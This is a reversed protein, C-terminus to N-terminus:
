GGDLMRLGVFHYRFTVRDFISLTRDMPLSAPGRKQNAFIVRALGIQSPDIAGNPGGKKNGNMQGLINAITALNQDNPAGGNPDGAAAAAYTNADGLNDADNPLSPPNDDMQQLVAGLEAQQDPDLSPDMAAALAQGPSSANGLFSNLPMQTAQQFGGGFQPSTVTSPMNSGATAACSTIMSSDSQAQSCTDGSGGSTDQTAAAGIPNGGSIVNQSGDSGTGGGGVATAAAVPTAGSNYSEATALDSTLSALATKMSNNDSYAQMAAMATTVCSATDRNNAMKQRISKAENKEVAAAQKAEAEQAAQAQEQRTKGTLLSAGHTIAESGGSFLINTLANQLDNNMIGDAASTALNFTQCVAGLYPLLGVCASACVGAVAVWVKWLASDANYTKLDSAAAQCSSYKQYATSNQNAPAPQSLSCGCINNMDGPGPSPVPSPTGTPCSYAHASSATLALVLQGLFLVYATNKLLRAFFNIKVSLDGM